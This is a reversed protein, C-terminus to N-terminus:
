LAVKQNMMYDPICHTESGCDDPWPGFTGVSRREAGNLQEEILEVILDVYLDNHGVATVRHYNFGISTAAEAAQTDLDFLVETHDSTFGLPCILLDTSGTTGDLSKIHDCIDPELWPVHPPGSRSQFVLDYQEIGVRDAILSATEHLQPVYESVEAM